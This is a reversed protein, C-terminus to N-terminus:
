GVFGEVIRSEMFYNTYYVRGKRGGDRVKAVELSGYAKGTNSLLERMKNIKDKWEKKKLEGEELEENPTPRIWVETDFGNLTLYKAMEYDTLPNMLIIIDAGYAKRASGMVDEIGVAWGAGKTAPKRVESISLLTNGSDVFERCQKVQYKEVQRENMNAGDPEPILEMMDLVGLCNHCGTREKLIESSRVMGKGNLFGATKGDIFAIRNRLRAMEYKAMELRESEEQTGGRGGYLRRLTNFELNGLYCLMRAEIEFRSMDLSYFAVCWDPLNITNIAVQMATITKGINPQAALIGFGRLGMTLSTVRSLSKVDIGIIDTSSIRQMYSHLLDADDAVTRLELGTSSIQAVRVASTELVAPLDAIAGGDVIGKLSSIAREAERRLVEEQKRERLRKNMDVFDDVSVGLADTLEGFLSVVLHSEREPDTVTSAFDLAKQILESRVLDTISECASLWQRALWRYIHVPQELLRAVAEVGKSDLYSDVDKHEGLINPDIVLITPTRKATSYADVMSQQGAVGARDNDTIFILTRVGIDHLLQLREANLQAGSGGVAFWNVFGNQRAKLVDMYGETAVLKPGTANAVDLGIGGIRKVGDGDTWLYKDKRDDIARGWIARLRGRVDRLAGILRNNWSTRPKGDDYYFGLKQAEQLQIPLDEVSGLYGLEEKKIFAPLFKRSDLYDLCDVVGGDAFGNDMGDTLEKRCYDLVTNLADQKRAAESIRALTEPNANREPFPVGALECARRAAKVFDVGRPQKDTKALYGLISVVYGCENQRNCHLSYKDPYIYATRKGCSPCRTNIAAGRRKPELEAFVAERDLNPYCHSELYESLQEYM